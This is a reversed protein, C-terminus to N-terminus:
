TLRDPKKWGSAIKALFKNPSVPRRPSARDERIAVKLRKAVNM